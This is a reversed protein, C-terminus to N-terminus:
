IHMLLLQDYVVNEGTPVRPHYFSGIKTDCLESSGRPDLIVCWADPLVHVLICVVKLKIDLKNMVTMQVVCEIKDRDRGTGRYM